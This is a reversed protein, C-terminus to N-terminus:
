HNTPELLQCNVVLNISYQHGHNDIRLVVGFPERIGKFIIFMNTFHTPSAGGTGGMPPDGGIAFAQGVPRTSNTDPM